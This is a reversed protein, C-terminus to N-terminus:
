IYGRRRQEVKTLSTLHWGDCLPCRYTGKPMTKDAQNRFDTGRSWRKADARSQFRLKNCSM